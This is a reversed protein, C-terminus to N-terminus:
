NRKFVLFDSSMTGIEGKVRGAITTSPHVVVKELSFNGIYPLLYPFLERYNEHSGPRYEILPFLPTQIIVLNRSHLFIEQLTWLFDEENTIHMLVELSMVLDFKEIELPKGPSIVMFRKTKDSKFIESCNYITTKSVDLGLYNEVNLYKLLNGDGCGFDLVSRVGNASIEDNVVRSKYTAHEAYSGKGSDGHVSYRHEWYKLYDLESKKTVRSLLFALKRKISLKQSVLIM